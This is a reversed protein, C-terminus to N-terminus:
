KLSSICNMRSSKFQTNEDFTIRRPAHSSPPLCAIPNLTTRWANWVIRCVNMNSKKVWRRFAGVRITTSHKGKTPSNSGSSSQRRRGDEAERLPTESCSSSQKISPENVVAMRSIKVSLHRPFDKRFFFTPRWQIKHLCMVYVSFLTFCCACTTGWLPFSVSLSPWSAKEPRTGAQIFRIQGNWIYWWLYISFQESTLNHIVKSINKCIGKCILWTM